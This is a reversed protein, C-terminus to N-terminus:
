SFVDPLECDGTQDYKLRHAQIITNNSAIVQAAVTSVAKARNIECRLDSDNVETDNLRELQEFLLNNLDTMKNRTM